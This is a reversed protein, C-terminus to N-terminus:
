SNQCSCWATQEYQAASISYGQGGKGPTVTLVQRGMGYKHLPNESDILQINCPAVTCKMKNTPAWQALQKHNKLLKISSYHVYWVLWGNWTYLEIAKLIKIYDSYVIDMVALKFLKMIGRIHGWVGYSDCREGAEGDGLGLCGSTQKRDRDTNRNQVRQAM